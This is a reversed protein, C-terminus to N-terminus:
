LYDGGPKVRNAWEEFCTACTPCQKLLDDRWDEIRTAEAYAKCDACLGVPGLLGEDRFIYLSLTSGEVVFKAAHACIIHAGQRGHVRCLFIAMAGTRDPRWCWRRRLGPFAFWSTVM